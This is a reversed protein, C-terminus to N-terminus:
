AASKGTSKYAPALVPKGTNGELALQALRLNAGAVKGLAAQLLKIAPRIRLEKALDKLAITTATYHDALEM